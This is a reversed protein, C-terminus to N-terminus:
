IVGEGLFVGVGYDGGRAPFWTGIWKFEVLAGLPEVFKEGGIWAGLGFDEM